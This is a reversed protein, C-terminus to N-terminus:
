GLRGYLRRRKKVGEVTLDPGSFDVGVYGNIQIDILGPAIYTKPISGDKKLPSVKEILHKDMSVSVPNGNSYLMGKVSQAQIKSIMVFLFLFLFVRLTRMMLPKFKM